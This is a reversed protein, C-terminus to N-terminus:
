FFAVTKQVIVFFTSDESEVYVGKKKLHKEWQHRIKKQKWGCSNRGYSDDCWWSKLQRDKPKEFEKYEPISAMRKRSKTKGKRYYSQTHSKPHMCEKRHLSWENKPKVNESLIAFVKTEIEEKYNRLDINTGDEWYAIYNFYKPIQGTCLWWFSMDTGTLNQENLFPIEWKSKNFSDHTKTHLAIYDLLQDITDFKMTQKIYYTKTIIHYFDIVGLIIKKQKPIFM